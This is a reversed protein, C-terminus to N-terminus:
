EFASEAEYEARAFYSTSGRVSEAEAITHIILAITLLEMSPDPFSM